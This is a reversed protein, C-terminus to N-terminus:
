PSPAITCKVTKGGSTWSAADHKGHWKHKADSYDFSADTTKNQPLTVPVAGPPGISVTGATDNFAVTLTLGGECAYTVTNVVVDGPQPTATIKGTPLPPPPAVPVPAPPPPPATETACAALLSLSALLLLRVKM